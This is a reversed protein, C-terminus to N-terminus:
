DRRNPIELFSPLSKHSSGVKHLSGEPEVQREPEGFIVAVRVQDDTM